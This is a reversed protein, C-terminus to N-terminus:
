REGLQDWAVGFSLLFLEPDLLESNSAYEEVASNSM